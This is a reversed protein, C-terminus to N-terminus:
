CFHEHGGKDGSRAIPLGRGQMKSFFILGVECILFIARMRVYEIPAVTAETMMFMERIRMGAAHNRLMATANMMPPFIVGESSFCDAEDM